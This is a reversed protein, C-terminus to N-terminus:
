SISAARHGLRCGTDLLDLALWEDGVKAQLVYDWKTGVTIAAAVQDPISMVVWVVPIVDLTAPGHGEGRALPMCLREEIVHEDSDVLRVADPMLEDTGGELQMWFRGGSEHLCFRFPVKPLLRPAPFPIPESGIAISEPAIAIPEVILEPDIIPAALAAYTGPVLARVADAIKEASARLVEHGGLMHVGYSLELAARAVDGRPLVFDIYRAFEHAAGDIDGGNALTAALRRHAALDCPEIAVASWLLTLAAVRQGHKLLLTAGEKLADLDGQNRGEETM